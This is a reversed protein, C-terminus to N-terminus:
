SYTHLGDLMAKARDALARPRVEHLHHLGREAPGADTYPCCSPGRPAHTSSPKWPAPKREARAGRDLGIKGVLAFEALAEDLDDVEVLAAPVGPHVGFGWLITDDQRRSAARAEAPTHTMACVMAGRWRVVQAPTVDPATHPHHDLPPLDSPSM